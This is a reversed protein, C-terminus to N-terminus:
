VDSIQYHCALDGLEYSEYLVHGFCAQTPWCPMNEELTHSLDVVHFGGQLEALTSELLSASM